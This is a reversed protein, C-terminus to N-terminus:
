KVLQGVLLVCTNMHYSHHSFKINIWPFPDHDCRARRDMMDWNLFDSSCCTEAGGKGCLCFCLITSKSYFPRGTRHHHNNGKLNLRYQVNLLQTAKATEGTLPPTIFHSWQVQTCTDSRTHSFSSSRSSVAVFLVRYLREGEMNKQVQGLGGEDNHTAREAAATSPGRLWSSSPYYFSNIFSSSM